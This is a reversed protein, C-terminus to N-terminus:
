KKKAAKIYKAEPVFTTDVKSTAPYTAARAGDSEWDMHKPGATVTVAVSAMVIGTFALLVDLCGRRKRSNNTKQKREM